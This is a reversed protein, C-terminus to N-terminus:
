LDGRCPATMAGEATCSYAGARVATQVADRLEVGDALAAGLYGTFADGAGTTDAVDVTPPEVGFAPDLAADLLSAGAGDETRVIRAGRDAATALSERLAAFETQNPTLLDVAGHAVLREAGATPAPDVIVTPGPTPLEDLLALAAEPPIENQLLLVDAAGIAPAHDAADAPSVTGNAGPTICIRNEGDPTVWIYAAGTDTERTALRPTVGESEFQERVGFAAADAGVAGHISATAGARGAAVAQNAGKGGLRTASAQFDAPPQDVTLTEGAAPFPDLQEALARVTAQSCRQTRDLNASGFVAVRGM